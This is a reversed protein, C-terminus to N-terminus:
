HSMLVPLTMQKLIHRAVPGLVAKGNGTKNYAGMVLLDSREECARNLLMDGPPFDISLVMEGKVRIGSRVLHGVIEELREEAGDIAAKETVMNVLHVKQAKRLLPMADHLARGSERGGSWAVLIRECRPIFRGTYPVTVVPRGSILVLREPLDAPLTGSGRADTQGVVILDSAHALHTLRDMGQGCWRADIDMEECREIFQAALEDQWSLYAAGPEAYIIGNLRAGHRSAYALALEFRVDAAPSRDMVVLIDALNM